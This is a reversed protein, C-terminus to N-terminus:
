AMLSKLHAMIPADVDHMSLDPSQMELFAPKGSCESHEELNEERWVVM